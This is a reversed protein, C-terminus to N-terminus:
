HVVPVGAAVKAAEIGNDRNLPDSSQVSDAGSPAIAPASSSSKSSSGTLKRIVKAALTPYNVQARTVFKNLFKPLSMDVSELVNGNRDIWGRPM